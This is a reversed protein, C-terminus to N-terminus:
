GLGAARAIQLLGTAVVIIGVVRAVRAGGPALREATIAAAVAIMVRLDMVGLALAVATLAACSRGCHAGLELGHRWATGADASLTCGSGSTERCFALHHAKWRTLQVVGGLLLAAGIGVPAMRTIIPQRMQLEALGVGLPFVIAGLVTWVLFYATGVLATLRVARAASADGIMRRYRRLLPVLSPLMMAVMMAIWMGLFSAGADTWSQGPMRMWM